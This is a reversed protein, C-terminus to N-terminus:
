IYGLISIFKQKLIIRILTKKKFTLCQHSNLFKFKIIVFFSECVHQIMCEPSDHNLCVFVRLTWMKWKNKFIVVYCTQLFLLFFDMFLILNISFLCETILLLNNANYSIPKYANIRQKMNQYMQFHISNVQLETLYLISITEM